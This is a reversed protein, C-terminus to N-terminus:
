SCTLDQEHLPQKQNWGLLATVALLVAAALTHPHLSPPPLPNAQQVWGEPAGGWDPEEYTGAAAPPPAPPADAADQEQQQEGAAAQQAEAAALQEHARLVAQQIAVDRQAPTVSAAAAAAAAAVRAKIAACAGVLTMHQPAVTSPDLPLSKCPDSSAM